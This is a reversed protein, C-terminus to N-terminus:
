LHAYAGPEMNDRDRLDVVIYSNGSNDETSRLHFIDGLAGVLETVSLFGWQLYPM